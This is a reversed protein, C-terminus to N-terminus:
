RTSLLHKDSDYATGSTLGSSFAFEDYTPNPSDRAIGFFTASLASTKNEKPEYEKLIIEIEKVVDNMTPRGMSSEEICRLAVGLFKKFGVLSRSNQLLAPDIIDRLGYFEEEQDDLAMRVERVVYKGEVVPLRGTILELLVVGLSYVDSKATLQQTM